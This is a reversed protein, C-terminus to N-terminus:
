RWESGYGKEQMESWFASDDNLKEELKGCLVLDDAKLLGSLKQEKEYEYFRM